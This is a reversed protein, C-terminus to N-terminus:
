SEQKTEPLPSFGTICCESIEAVSCIDLAEFLAFGWVLVQVTPKRKNFFAPYKGTVRWASLGRDGYRRPKFVNPGSIVPMGVEAVEAKWGAGKWDLFSPPFSGLEM